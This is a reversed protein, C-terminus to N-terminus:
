IVKAYIPSGYNAIFNALTLAKHCQRIKQIVSKIEKLLDHCDLSSKTYLNIIGPQATSVNKRVKKFLEM